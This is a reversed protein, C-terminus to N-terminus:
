IWEFDHQSLTYIYVRFTHLQILFM